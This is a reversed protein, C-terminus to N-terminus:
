YLKQPTSKQFVNQLNLKKTAMVVLWISINRCFIHKTSSWEVYMELFSGHFIDAIFYYIGM